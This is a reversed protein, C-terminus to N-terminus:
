FALKNKMYIHEDIFRGIATVAYADLYDDRRQMWENGFKFLIAAKGDEFQIKWVKWNKFLDATIQVLHTKGDALKIKYNM